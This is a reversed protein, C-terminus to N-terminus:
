RSVIVTISQAPLAVSSLGSGQVPLTLIKEMDRTLTTQYIDATAGTLGKVNLHHEVTTPNTLVVTMASGSAFAVMDMRHSNKSILGPDDSEVRHVVSGPPASKFITQLVYYSKSKIVNKVGDGWTLTTGPYNKAYENDAWGRYYMWYNNPVWAMDTILGRMTDLAQALQFRPAAYDPKKEGYYPCVETQWLDRNAGKTTDVYQQVVKDWATPDKEPTWGNSIWPRYSHACIAGVAHGLKPDSSLQSSNPGFVAEMQEYSAAEYGIIPVTTYGAEDMRARVVKVVSRYQEPTYLCSDYPVPANPENQLSVATPLPLGKKKITDLLNVIYQSFAGYRDERLYVKHGKDDVSGDIAVTKMGTPCSFLGLLYQGTGKSKCLGINACLEDIYPQVVAGDATGARANVLIRDVTMGLDGFVAQQAAVKDTFKANWGSYEDGAVCGWGKVTQQGTPSVTASYTPATDAATVNSLCLCVLAAVINM